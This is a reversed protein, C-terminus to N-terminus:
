FGDNRSKMNSPGSAKGFRYDSTPDAKLTTPRTTVKFSDSSQRSSAEGNSKKWRTASTSSVLLVVDSGGAPQVATVIGKRPSGDGSPGLPTFSVEFTRRDTTGSPTEEKFKTDIPEGYAGYFGAIGMVNDSFFKKPQKALPTSGGSAIQVFTADGDKSKAAIDYYNGEALGWVSDFSISALVSNTLVVEGTITKGALKAEDVMIVGLEPKSKGSMTTASIALAAQPLQAPLLTVGIAAASRLIASRRDLSQHQLPARLAASSALFLTVTLMKTALSAAVAPCVSEAISGRYLELSISSEIQAHDKGHSELFEFVRANVLLQGKRLEFVLELFRCM